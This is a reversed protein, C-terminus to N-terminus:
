GKALSSGSVITGLHNEACQILAHGLMYVTSVKIKTKLAISIYRSNMKPIM